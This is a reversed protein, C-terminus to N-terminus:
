SDFEVIHRSRKRRMELYVGGSNIYIENELIFGNLLFQKVIEGETFHNKWGLKLRKSIEPRMNLTCYSLLVQNCHNCIEKIFYEPVTIYELIGCAFITDVCIDPFEKKNFDCVITERYRLVNDIPYYRIGPKLMKKLSMSGAGLDMITHCDQMLFPLLERYRHDWLGDEAFYHHREENEEWSSMEYCSPVNEDGLWDPGWVYNEGKVYGALDLRKFSKQKNIINSVIIFVSKNDELYEFSKVPKERITDTAIQETDSVVYAVRSWFDDTYCFVEKSTGYVVIQKM